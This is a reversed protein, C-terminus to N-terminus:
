EEEPSGRVQGWVTMALLYIGVFTLGVAGITLGLAAAGLGCMEVATAKQADTAQRWRDVM